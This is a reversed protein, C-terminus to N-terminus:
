FINLKVPTKLIKFNIIFNNLRDVLRVANKIIIQHEQQSEKYKATLFSKGIVGANIELVYINFDKTESKTNLCSLDATELAEMDLKTESPCAILSKISFINKDESEFDIEGIKISKKAFFSLKCVGSFMTCETSNTKFFMTDSIEITQLHICKLLMLDIIIQFIYNM